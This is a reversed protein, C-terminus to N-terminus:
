WPRGPAPSRRDYGASSVGETRLARVRRPVARAPASPWGNESRSRDRREAAADQAEEAEARQAELAPQM